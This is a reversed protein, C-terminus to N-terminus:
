FSLFYSKIFYAHTFHYILKFKYSFSYERYGIQYNEFLLSMDSKAFMDIVINIISQRIKEYVAICLYVCIRVYVHVYMCMCELICNVIYSYLSPFVVMFPVPISM